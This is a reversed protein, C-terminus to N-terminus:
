HKAQNLVVGVSKSTYVVSHYFSPLTLQVVISAPPHSLSGIPIGCWKKCKNAALEGQAGEIVCFVLGLTSTLLALCIFSAMFDKYPCDIIAFFSWWFLLMAISYMNCENVCTCIGQQNHPQIIM